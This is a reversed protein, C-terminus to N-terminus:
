GKTSLDGEIVIAVGSESDAHAEIGTSVGSDSSVKTDGEVELDINGNSKAETHIGAADGGAASVTVGDGTEM